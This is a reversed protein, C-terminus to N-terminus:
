LMLMADGYSFFRYRHAIAEEYARDITEKGAFASVMMLLSSEPTHFNTVLSEVVNFHHAGPYIFIDTKDTGAQLRGDRWASELTRTSTTGVAIIRRGEKKAQNVAEATEDPVTYWEEHMKHDAIFETRVPLFTGLGVHLTVFNVTIGKKKLSEIIEDTFHLGATPAAISGVNESYITQYREWDDQTDERKIYPPLPMHGHIDLYEDTVPKSFELLRYQEEEGIIKGTINEPFIYEKGIRQKKARKAMVLWKQSTLKEILLFENKGGSELTQGFIRAKRVRSNNFIIVSNEPLFTHLDCIHSHSIRGSHRDLVLLRSEGRKQVPKQAILEEPLNFFFDRTKM